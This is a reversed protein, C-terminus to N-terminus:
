KQSITYITLLGNDSASLFQAENIILNNALNGRNYDGIKFVTSFSLTIFILLLLSVVYTPIPGLIPTRLLSFFYELSDLINSKLDLLKSYYSQELNFKEWYNQPPEFTLNSQLLDLATQYGKFEELCVPCSKFHENLSNRQNENLDQYDLFLKKAKKCKM